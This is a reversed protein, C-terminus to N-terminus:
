PKDGDDEPTSSWVTYRKDPDSRVPMEWPLLRDQDAPKGQRATDKNGADTTKTAERGAAPSSAEKAGSGASRRRARGNGDDDDSGRNSDRASDSNSNRNAAAPKASTEAQQQEQKDSPRREPAPPREAAAPQEAPAPKAPSSPQEPAGTDAVAAPKPPRGRGGSGDGTSEAGGTEQTRRSDSKAEQHPQSEGTAKASGTESSEKRPASEEPSKPRSSRAEGSDGGGSEDRAEGAEGSAAQQQDDQRPGRRRRGRGRSGRRKKQGGGDGGTSKQSQQQGDSQGQNQAKKDDPSEKGDATPKQPKGAQQSKGDSKRGKRAGSKKGGRSRQEDGDKRSQQQKGKGAKSSKGSSSGQRSRSSAPRKGSDRKGRTKKGGSDEDGTAFLYRWLRVFLGPGQPGQPQDEALRQPPPAPASPVIATVAPKELPKKDAQWSPIEDEGDVAALEYSVGTNEPLLTQDDRVRRISYNPTELDPNAVLLLEVENRDEVNQVWDRKENLLYTAVDVPLQAIVKATREKRAEEGVLRLIALALSEVGRINGTGNCRPCIQHSSEGLSPRLRQRSMELLGFRSIKGIQVRARDMRVAERLRNEVERQNKQPGMDIFDIVVLGGLDRLRLQRAVEDAAELNTNLATSEIDEGKTARASNIDVSVLAETHDIVLSGGSPLIVSHAFASEIQSEIQYRTFLPVADDYYKLKRLNHPMVREVFERAENYAKTDDVLIEGIDNTLYDRMARIIANSEQYILFPSPREVVVKLIAEWVAFLNDLDWKLEEASRDIGATRVIISMGDPIELEELSERIQERDEGVIRRSVGGSKPKNPKLVLFRGALSVFTTLAAGKTGREEKDIQVVIDQGERLVDKIGPRGNGESEKVYYEPSVEKFPLFGHREAGYDIFAAELSPEIRTIKGKYINAKKREQSPTEINLDYLRQGDVLAMRLEEEQTANVLMRKM